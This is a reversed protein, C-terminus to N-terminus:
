LSNTIFANLFFAASKWACSLPIASYILFFPNIFACFVANMPYPKDIFLIAEGCSQGETLINQIFEKGEENYNNLKVEGKIIQYYYNPTDGECFINEAPKYDRVEAGASHLINEDIVM